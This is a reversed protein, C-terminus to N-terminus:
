IELYIGVTDLEDKLSILENKSLELINRMLKSFKVLYHSALNKENELIYKQISNLSNFIFDTDMRGRLAQMEMQLVQHQLARKENERKKIRELRFLYLIIGLGILLLGVPLYWYAALIDKVKVPESEGVLKPNPELYLETVEEPTLVRNYFKLDDLCGNFWSYNYDKSDPMYNSVHGLVISDGQLYQSEFGKFGKQQCVGNIYLYVTDHDFMYVCHYWKLLNAPAKALASTQQKALSTNAGAMKHSVLNMGICYAENYQESQMSRTYVMPEGSYRYSNTTYDNIKFWFSISMMPQKLVDSTGLTIYDNKGDFSYAANANGFRDPVLSPGRVKGHLTGVSDLANGTFYYSAVLGEKPQALSQFVSLSFLFILYHKFFGHATLSVM